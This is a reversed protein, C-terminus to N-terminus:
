KENENANGEKETNFIEPHRQAYSKVIAGWAADTQEQTFEGGSVVEGSNRSIVIPM